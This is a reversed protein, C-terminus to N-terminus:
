EEAIAPLGDDDLAESERRPVLVRILAQTALYKLLVEPQPLDRHDNLDVSVTGDWDTRLHMVRTENGKVSILLASEGHHENICITHGSMISLCVGTVQRSLHQNVSHVIASLYTQNDKFQRLFVELEPLSASLILFHLHKIVERDAENFLACIESDLIRRAREVAQESSSAQSAEQTSEM